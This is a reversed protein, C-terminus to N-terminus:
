VQPYGNVVEGHATKPEKPKRMQAIGYVCGWCCALCCLCQCVVLLVPGLTFTATWFIEQLLTLLSGFVWILPVIVLTPIGCFLTYCCFCCCVFILGVITSAPDSQQQSSDKEMDNQLKRLNENETLSRAVTLGFLMLVVLFSRLDMKM